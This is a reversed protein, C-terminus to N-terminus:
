VEPETTKFTKKQITIKDELDIKKDKALSYLYSIILVKNLSAATVVKNEDIGFKEGTKLDKYYISYTGEEGKLFKGLVNKRIDETTKSSDFKIQPLFSLQRGVFLLIVSYVVLAIALKKVM